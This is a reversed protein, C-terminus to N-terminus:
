AFCPSETAAGVFSVMMERRHFFLHSSNRFELTYLALPIGHDGSGPPFPENELLGETFLVLRTLKSKRDTDSVMLFKKVDRVMLDSYIM